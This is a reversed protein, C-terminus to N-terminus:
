KQICQKSMAGVMKKIDKIKNQFIVYLKMQKATADEQHVKTRITNRLDRNEKKKCHRHIINLWLGKRSSM